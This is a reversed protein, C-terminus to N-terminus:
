LEAARHSRGPRCRGCPRRRRFPLVVAQGHRCFLDVANDADIGVAAGEDRHRHGCEARYERMGLRGGILASVPVQKSKSALINRTIPTPNQLSRSPASGSQRGEEAGCALPDDFHAAGLSRRLTAAALGIRDSGHAGSALDQGRFVQEGRATTALTRRQSNQQGGVLTRDTRARCRDAVELGQDHGGGSSRLASSRLM